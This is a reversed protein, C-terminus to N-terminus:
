YLFKTEIIKITDKTVNFTQHFKKNESKYSGGILATLKIDLHVYPSGDYIAMFIDGYDVENINSHKSLLQNCSANSISVLTDMTKLSLKDKAMENANLSVRTNEGSKYDILTTYKVEDFKRTDDTKPGQVAIYVVLLSIFFVVVAVHLKPVSPSIHLSETKLKSKEM